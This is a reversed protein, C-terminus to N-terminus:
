LIILRLIHFSVLNILAYPICRKFTAVEVKLFFRERERARERERERERERQTERERERPNKPYLHCFHPLIITM